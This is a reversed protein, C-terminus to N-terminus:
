RDYAAEADPSCSLSFGDWNRLAWLAGGGRPAWTTPQSVLEDPTWCRRKSRMRNSVEAGHTDAIQMMGILCYAAEEKAPTFVITARSQRPMELGVSGIEPFATALRRNTPKDDGSDHGASYSM